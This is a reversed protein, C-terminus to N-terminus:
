SGPMGEGGSLVFGEMEEKWRELRGAWRMGEESIGGIM